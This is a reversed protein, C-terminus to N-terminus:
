STIYEAPAFYFPPPPSVNVKEHNKCVGRLKNQGGGRKNIERIEHPIVFINMSM